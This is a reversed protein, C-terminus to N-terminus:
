REELGNNNFPKIYILGKKHIKAEFTKNPCLYINHGM